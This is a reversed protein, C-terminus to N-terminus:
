SQPEEGNEPDCPGQTHLCTLSLTEFESTEEIAPSEYLRRPRQLPAGPGRADGNDGMM